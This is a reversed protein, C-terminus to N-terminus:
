DSISRITAMETIHTQVNNTIKFSLFRKKGISNNELAFAASDVEKWGGFYEDKQKRQV